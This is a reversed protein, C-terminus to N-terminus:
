AAVRRQRGLRLGAGLGLLALAGAAIFKWRSSEPAPAPEHAHLDLEGALLDSERGALVTATVPILGPQPERELQVSFEGEGKGEGKPVPKLTVGGFDLELTAGQVPANSAAHDLY